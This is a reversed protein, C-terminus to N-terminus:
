EPSAGSSLCGLWPEPFKQSSSPLELPNVKIGLEHELRKSLLKVHRLTSNM